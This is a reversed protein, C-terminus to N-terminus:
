PDLARNDSTWISYTLAGATLRQYTFQGTTKDLLVTIAGGSFTNGTGNLYLTSTSATSITALPAAGPDTTGDLSTTWNTLDDWNGTTGDWWYNAANAASSGFALSALALASSRLFRNSKLKM